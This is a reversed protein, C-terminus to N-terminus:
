SSPMRIYSDMEKFLRHRLIKRWEKKTPNLIYVKDGDEKKETQIETIAAIQKRQSKNKPDLYYLTVYDKDKFEVLTLQWQNSEERVNMFYFGKYRRLDLSDSLVLTDGGPNLLIRKAEVQISDGDSSVFLGRHKRPIKKFSRKNVPQPREFQYTACATVLLSTILMAFGTRM